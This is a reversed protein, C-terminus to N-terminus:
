MGFSRRAEMMPLPAHHDTGATTINLRCSWGEVAFLSGGFQLRYHPQFAAVYRSRYNPVTWVLPLEGLWAFALALPGTFRQAIRQALVALWSSPWLGGHAQMEALTWWWLDGADGVPAGDGSYNHRQMRLLPWSEPFGYWSWDVGPPFGHHVHDGSLLRPIDGFSALRPYAAPRLPM